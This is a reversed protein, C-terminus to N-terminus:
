ARREIRLQPTLDRCELSLLFEESESIGVLEVVRDVFDALRAPDGAVGEDVPVLTVLKLGGEGMGGWGASLSRRLGVPGTSWSSGYLGRKMLARYHPSRVFAEGVTKAPAEDREDQLKM